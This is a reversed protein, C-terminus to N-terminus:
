GPSIIKNIGAALHLARVRSPGITTILLKHTGCPFLHGGDVTKEKKKERGKKEKGSPTIM